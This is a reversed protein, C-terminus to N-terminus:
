ATSRGGRRRGVTPHETSRAVPPLLVAMGCGCTILALAGPLCLLLTYFPEM